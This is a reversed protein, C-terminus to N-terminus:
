HLTESEDPYYHKRAWELNKKEEYTLSSMGSRAIKELLTDIIKKAEIRKEIERRKKELRRKKLFASAFGGGTESSGRDNSAAGSSSKPKFFFKLLVFGSILGGLHGVHSIGSNSQNITGVFEMLGFFLVLYKIKVPIFFYLLVERNPWTMGYALLIGYIAGSAGITPAPSGTYCSMATIFVGAGIGCYLYYKIFLKSGWREELSGAFMWLTFLNFIIHLFGGHLFMYTFIQWIKFEQIIGRYSLGFTQQLTWSYSGAASQMLFIAGNIILLRKVMPTIPGGFRINRNIM